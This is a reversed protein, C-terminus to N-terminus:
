IVLVIQQLQSSGTQYFYIFIFARKSIIRFIFLMFIVYTAGKLFPDVAGHQKNIGVSTKM